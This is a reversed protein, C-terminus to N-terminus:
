DKSYHPNTEKIHVNVSKIPRDLPEVLKVAIFCINITHAELVTSYGPLWKACVSTM